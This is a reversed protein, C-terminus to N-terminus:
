GAIGPDAMLTVAFLLLFVFCMVRAFGSARSAAAFGLVGLVLAVVLLILSPFLM